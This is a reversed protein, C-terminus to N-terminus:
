SILLTSDRGTGSLSDFELKPLKKDRLKLTGHIDRDFCDIKLKVKIDKDESFRLDQKRM